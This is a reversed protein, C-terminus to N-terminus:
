WSGGGGGGFGGGSFGGGGGSGGSGGGFSFGGSGSSSPSSIMSSQATSITNSFVQSFNHPSFGYVAYGTYWVPPRVDLENFKKGWTTLLDFAVAYGMTKEFFSPDQRLLTKLRDSEAKEIFMKFGTVHMMAEDGKSTRKMFLGSCFALGICVIIWVITAPAEYWQSILYWGAVGLLILAFIILLGMVKSSKTYYGADLACKKLSAEAQEMTTYFTNELGKVSTNDGEAFLGDFMIREYAPANAPLNKLKHLITDSGTDVDGRKLEEVTIYGYAGWHPIFAILDSADSKDNILFGAMAPDIGPPPQFDVVNTLKRDRGIARWLLYYALILFLPFLVWVYKDATVELQSARYIYDKPLNVLVTVDDGYNLPKITTGTIIGNNYTITANSDNSGDRGTYVFYDHNTLPTNGPLHITFSVKNFNATWDPGLMNWYFKIASDTYFFAYKVRYQITYQQRGTIYKDADGVKINVKGDARNKKYEWGPVNIKYIDIWRNEETGDANKMVYNMPIARWIGHKEDDFKVDYKETVDFYCDKNIVVDVHLSNVTFEQAFSICKFFIAFVFCLVTKRM